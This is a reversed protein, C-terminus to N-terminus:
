LKRLMDAIAKALDNLYGMAYAGNVPVKVIDATKAIVEAIKEDDAVIDQIEALAKQKIEEKHSCNIESTYKLCEISVEDLVDRITTKEEEAIQEAVIDKIEQEAENFVTPFVESAAVNGIRGDKYGQVYIDKIRDRITKREAM